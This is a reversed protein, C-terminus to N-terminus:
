SRPKKPRKLPEIRRCIIRIGGPTLKSASLMLVHIPTSVMNRVYALDPLGAEALLMHNQQACRLIGQRVEPVASWLGNCILLRGSSSLIRPWLKLIAQRAQKQGNAGDIYSLSEIPVFNAPVHMDIGVPLERKGAARRYAHHGLATILFTRSAETGGAVITLGIKQNLLEWLKGIKAPAFAVCPHELSPLMRCHAEIFDRRQVPSLRELLCMFALVHPHDFIDFWHYAMSKSRGMMQGLRDFGMPKRHSASLRARLDGFLDRATFPYAPPKILPSELKTFECTQKNM